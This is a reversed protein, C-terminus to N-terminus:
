RKKTLYKKAFEQISKREAEGMTSKVQLMLEFLVDQDYGLNTTMKSCYKIEEKYLREDIKMLQVLSFLYDFKQDDTLDEPIIVEHSEYFLTAISSEPFGNAKGINSIYSKEREGLNGDVRALNVLLKLQELLVM